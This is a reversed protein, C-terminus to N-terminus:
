NFWGKGKRNVWETLAQRGVPSLGLDDIERALQEPSGNGGAYGNLRAVATSAVFDKKQPYIRTMERALDSRRGLLYKQHYDEALYFTRVPLVQSRVNGDLKKQEAALSAIALERQRENHYFIANMYQRMWTRDTPDHSSWFIDLLQSYSIRQPDFDVQVTETHDGLNSYDPNEMRGGAYGM